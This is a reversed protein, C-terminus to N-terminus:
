ILPPMGSKGCGSRAPSGGNLTGHAALESSHSKRHPEKRKMPLLEQGPQFRHLVYVALYSWRKCFQCHPAPISAARRANSIGPTPITLSAEICHFPQVRSQTLQIAARQRAPVHHKGIGQTSRNIKTLIGTKRGSVSPHFLHPKPVEKSKAVMESKSM